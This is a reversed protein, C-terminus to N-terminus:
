FPWHLHPRRDSRIKFTRNSDQTGVLALGFVFGTSHTGQDGKVDHFVSPNQPRHPSKSNPVFCFLSFSLLHDSCTILFAYRSASRFENRSSSRLVQGNLHRSCAFVGSIWHSIIDTVIMELIVGGPQLVATSPNLLVDLFRRRMNDCPHGGGSKKRLFKAILSNRM